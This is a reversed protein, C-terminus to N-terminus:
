RAGNASQVGSPATQDPALREMEARTAPPLRVDAHPTEADLRLAEAAAQRARETEGGRFAARALEAQIAPSTPYLRAAEGFHGLAVARLADGRRLDAQLAAARGALVRAAASGPKRALLGHAAQAVGDPTAAEPEAIAQQLMRQWPEFAYRDARAAAQLHEAARGPEAAAELLAGRASLVPIVGLREVLLFSAGAAVPLLWSFRSGAVNWTRAPARQSEVLAALLWLSAALGPYLIGGAFLLNLLLAALAVRLSLAGLAGHRIWPWAVAVVSALAAAVILLELLGPAVSQAAGGLAALPLGVAAGALMSPAAGLTSETAEASPAGRPWLVLALAAALAAAAPLGATAAIELLFNHPDKIEESSWPSKFRTYADDFSGPGCGLLPHEALIPLTAQWYLRRYGLSKPAERLLEADVGGTAIALALLLGMLGAAAALAPMSVRRARVIAAGSLVAGGLGVAGLAARSKSLLLALALPALTAATWLGRRAPTWSSAAGLAAAAALVTWPTLFGAMSNTLSFTGFPELSALRQEYLERERSGPPYWLGAGRLAGDPDAAYTARDAPLSVFFQHVAVLAVGVAVGILLVTLSRREADGRLLQRPLWYSWALAVGGALLNLAPRPASRVVGAWGALLYFGLFVALALDTRSSRPALESWRWVATSWAVGLASWCAALILGDGTWSISEAPLLPWAVHLATAAGLLWRRAREAPAPASPRGAERRAAARAHRSM